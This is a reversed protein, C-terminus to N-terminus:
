PTFCTCWHLGLQLYMFEQIPYKIPISGISAIEFYTSNNQLKLRVREIKENAM